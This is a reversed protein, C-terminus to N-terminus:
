WIVERTGPPIKLGHALVQVLGSFHYLICHRSKTQACRQSALIVSISKVSSRMFRGAFNEALQSLQLTCKVHLTLINNEMEQSRAVLRQRHTKRKRQSLMCFFTVWQRNYSSTQRNKVTQWSYWHALCTCFVSLHLEKGRARVTVWEQPICSCSQSQSLIGSPFILGGNWPLSARDYQLYYTQWLHCARM